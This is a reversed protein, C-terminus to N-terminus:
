KVLNKEDLYGEWRIEDSATKRSDKEGDLKEFVSFLFQPEKELASISKGRKLYNKRRAIYDLWRTFRADIDESNVKSSSSSARHSDDITPCHKAILPTRENTLDGEVGTM